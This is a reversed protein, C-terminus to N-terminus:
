MISRELSASRMQLPGNAFITHELCILFEIVLDKSDTMIDESAAEIAESDAVIDESNTM